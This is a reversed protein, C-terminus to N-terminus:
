GKVSKANAWTVYEADMEQMLFCFRDFDEGDIRFRRAFADIAAFSLPFVGGMGGYFRDHQLVRYAFRYIGAWDPWDANEPRQASPISQAAEPDAMALKQLWVDADGHELDWRL